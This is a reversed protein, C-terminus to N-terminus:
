RGELSTSYMDLHFATLDDLLGAAGQRQLVRGKEYTRVLDAPAGLDFCAVPLGLGVLEHTVYSFTEACISPLLFINAGSQEILRPLEDRVYAGTIRVIEDDVPAEVSGFVTIKAQSGRDKIERALDRLVGAGKHMGIFGVVGVHMPLASLPGVGRPFPSVVHPIVQIRSRDLAPYARLLLARSSVSFCAIREAMGLAEGWAERWGVINAPPQVLPFVNGNTKLCRMCEKIDPVGCFEDADNMLFPSPCIAQYDHVAITLPAGANVLALLLAPFREPRPFSVADNCLVEGVLGSEALALPLSDNCALMTAQGASTCLELRYSLQSIDFTFVALLPSEALKRKVWEKRFHNAGGGMSHDIVLCIRDLGAASMATRLAALVGDDSRSAFAAKREYEALVARAMARLRETRSARAVQHPYLPLAFHEGTAVTGTLEITEPHSGEWGVYAMWGSWRANPTTPFAAAVDPRERGSTIQLRTSRGGKHALQLAVDRLVHEPHFAWGYAFLRGDRIVLADLSHMM